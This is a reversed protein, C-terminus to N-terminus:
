PLASLNNVVRIIGFNAATANYRCRFTGTIVDNGETEDIAEFSEWKGTLDMQIAKNNFTSGATTLATGLWELRINDPTEARWNVKEAAGTADHLFTLELTAELAEASFEHTSFYKAGSLTFRPVWGTVLEFNASILTSSKQTTGHTTSTDDIYLTGVSFPVDEVTPVSIAGTFSSVTSQRGMWEASMNLPGGAEGGITLSSVFAYEMEEAEQDDGGEITYTQITNKATTPLTYTYLYGSGETTPTATQVGAELLYPLQEFNCVVEEMSLASQLMPTLTRDLGSVYGVDEEVFLVERQDELTGMGRWLTTAAVATGATTEAGLQLKRLGRIGAM